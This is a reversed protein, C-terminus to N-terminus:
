TAVGEFLIHNLMAILATMTQEFHAETLAQPDTLLDWFLRNVLAATTERDLDRRAGPLSAVVEFIFSIRGATWARIPADWAAISPEIVMAERWARYVGAYELDAQFAARVFLALVGRSEEAEPPVELTLAELEVLLRDMLVLLVEGKSKFYLYFSGVAAGAADAIMDTTVASYGARAFLHLAAHLFADRRERSRKQQPVRLALSDLPRPSTRLPAPKESSDPSTDSLNM